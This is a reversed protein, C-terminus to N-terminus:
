RHFVRKELCIDNVDGFCNEESIANWVRRASPGGYGTYREPNNLLNVYVGREAISSGSPHISGHHEIAESLSTWDDVYVIIILM